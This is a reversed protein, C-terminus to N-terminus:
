ELNELVTINVLDNDQFTLKLIDVDNEADDLIVENNYSLILRDNLNYGKECYQLLLAMMLRKHTFIIADSDYNLVKMFAQYVRKKAENLSEGEPYKYDFNKDQMFRLMKINHKSMKGIKVDDFNNNINIITNNELVFYKATALASAYSSAYIDKAKIKKSLEKAIKEGTISLPRNKRKDEISSLTEYNIDNLVLNNSILYINM